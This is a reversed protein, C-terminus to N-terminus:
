QLYHNIINELQSIKEQLEKIELNKVRITKKLFILHSKIQENMNIYKEFEANDM